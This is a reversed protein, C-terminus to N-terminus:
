RSDELSPLEGDARQKEAIILLEFLHGISIRRDFALKGAEKKTKAEVILNLRAPSRLQKPRAM